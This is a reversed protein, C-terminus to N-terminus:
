KELSMHVDYRKAIGTFNSDVEVWQGGEATKNYILPVRRTEKFGLKDYLSLARRNDSTTQLTYGILDLEKRGWAMMIDVASQMLGPYGLKGRVINDIQCTASRWDFRYLGVHGVYVQDIVIMFLLRDSAAIVKEQLWKKTRKITIPFQVLFWQEHFKRWDALLQIIDARNIVESTVLQLKYDTGNNKGMLSVRGFPQQKLEAIKTLGKKHNMSDGIAKKM